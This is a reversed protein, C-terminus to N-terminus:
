ATEAKKPKPDLIEYARMVVIASYMRNILDKVEAVQEATLDQVPNKHILQALVARGVKKDGPLEQDKQHPFTLAREACKALTLVGEGVEDPVPRDDLDLIPKSFDIKM